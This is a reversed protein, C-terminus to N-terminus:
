LLVVAAEQLQGALGPVSGLLRPLGQRFMAQGKLIPEALRV